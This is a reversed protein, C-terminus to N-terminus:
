GGSWAACDASSLLDSVPIEIAETEMEADQLHFHAQGGDIEVPSPYIWAYAVIQQKMRSPARWVVCPAGPHVLDVHLVDGYENRCLASTTEPVLTPAFCNALKKGEAGPEGLATKYLVPPKTSDPITGDDQNEFRDSLFFRLEPDVVVVGLEEGLFTLRRQASDLLWLSVRAVSNASAVGRQPLHRAPKTASRM